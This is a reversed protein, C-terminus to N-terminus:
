QPRMAESFSVQQESTKAQTAVWEAVQDELVRNQLQNMLQPDRQYLEVVQQPEEYTSAITALSEAVRRNDLRIGNQRAIEGVLVGAAVRRRALERFSEPSTTMPQGQQKAQQEAQEALARAENEVMRQPLDLDPHSDVLKQVVDSKLRASLVGKLERELNARVDSRFQEMSGDKIGFTAIFAADLEPLSSEQVRSIKLEVRAPNGALAPVRFAAPFTMDFALEAGVEHGVLQQELDATMAGSGLITGSRDNGEAPHRVSGVQASYEFLVMDGNQAPRDAVTFTRRQLRLTDIMQDIDADSVSATPKTIELGGIEIKGIEPMIEFTATYEIEGNTPTGTTQIAPQVAPRLKEQNVAEQFSSGIMESLAENRIQRGFRQEIVKTPVKGPRFGKLRASRGMEQIRTRVTDELRQAPLRVTLKRGLKGVNEISVQM